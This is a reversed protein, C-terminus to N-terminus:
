TSLAIGERKKNRLLCGTRMALADELLIMMVDNM